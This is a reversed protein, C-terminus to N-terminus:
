KRIVLRKTTSQRDDYLRIFYIGDAFAELNLRLDNGAAAATWEQILLLKGTVDRLEVRLDRSITFLAELTVFGTSPNPQMNIGAAFGPEDIGIGSVYVTFTSDRTGCANGATLTVQYNGGSSYTHSPNQITSTTGDGFNWLWTTPNNTSLDTFDVTLTDNNVASFAAVPKDELYLLQQTTNLGGPNSVQLTVAKQGITSYVVNHPGATTASAPTAGSGFNWNYSTVTGTSNDTFVVTDGICPNLSSANIGAIPAAFGGAVININDIYLSNGYGNIAVLRLVVSNNIYPTLDVTDRRWHSSLSPSFVSGQDPVTALTTGSKLYATPTFSVGCNTSIDVRLGDSYLASFRAYAVDFVLYATTAGSLNIKPTELADENNPANYNFNNMWTAFTALGNSGVVQGSKVWTTSGDPNDISWNAPPFVGQFDEIIPLANGNTVDIYNVKTISDSGFQNIVRLKVTYSGLASFSVTPSQMTDNTNNVFTYTSPTITWKWSTPVTSSQDILDIPINLCPNVDSATFNAVPAGSADEINFDDLALDSAFGNGTSGRFRINVMKGNFAILPITIQTWASGQNGIIPNIVDQYWIGDALVDVHLEGINTGLMHYYISAEPNNVNALNFCPTILQAEQFDCAGSGELYLYRGSGGNGASPGTGTSATGGQNTRFDIDDEQGNIANEWGNSLGCVTLGCNTSTPCNSFSNFDESYPLAQSTGPYVRFLHDITDNYQNQDGNLETFVKISKTGSGTSSYSTSFTFQYNSAGPVLTDALTDRIISASGGVQYALPISYIPQNGGNGLLVTVEINNLGQCSPYLLPAAVEQLVADTGLPCGFTGPTKELAVARRGQANNPGLARVSIWYTNNPNVGTIKFQTTNTTGISDMYKTGLMSVEYGTAGPVPNWTFLMSDPCAWAINLNTPVGIISFPAQSTGTQTGRTVRVMANGSVVTPVAWDLHRQSAPVNTAINTYTAGSDLSYAVTFSGTGKPADWRIIENTTGGPPATWGATPRFTEGGIPHTVIIEDEVFTYVVYYKQPGNPVNAGNVIVKYDGSAPNDLTVQEANNLSDTARVANQSLTATSTSNLVWPQWSSGGRVLTFNLNNVLARSALVNAPPDTWFVMVRLESVNSPVSVVLTDTQGQSVSDILINNDEIDSIARRANIRGYGYYYDPGPNGIDDASNMLVAKMLGGDPDMGNNNAKYAQYLLAMVGSVGPSAMSTGTYSDYSPNGQNDQVTSFVSTGVASVDPKVRGDHAPGRSSSGAIVDNWTVNATAIVNKGQKHGGTITYWNSGANGASFVHILSPNQVADEDMQRCLATYGANTGNSYSSQTIRVGLNAYQTDVGDLYYNGNAFYNFYAVEAGPAMGQGIPNLNGAGFVTGAVHDGHNGNSPGAYSALRGAYDPHPGIDGDDGVAVTVGTGDYFTAGPYHAQIATVRHSSRARINEPTGPDEDEQIFYIFPDNILQELKNSPISIRVFGQSPRFSYTVDLADLHDSIFAKSLNPYFAVIVKLNSGDIAWMPFTNAAVNATQKMEPTVLAISRINYASIEMESIGEPIAVLFAKKPLYDFFLIGKREMAEKQVDNPLAYFQMIRYYYGNQSNAKFTQMIQGEPLQYVGSQLLLNFDAPKFATLVAAAAFFLLFRKTITRMSTSSNLPTLVSIFSAIKTKNNVHIRIRCYFDHINSTQCAVILIHRVDYFM